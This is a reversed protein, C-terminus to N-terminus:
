PSSMSPIEPAVMEAFDMVKATLLIKSLMFTNCSLVTNQGFYTLKIRFPREM